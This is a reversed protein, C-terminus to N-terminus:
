PLISPSADPFYNYDQVIALQFTYIRLVFYPVWPLYTPRPDNLFLDYRFPVRPERNYERLYSWEFSALPLPLYFKGGGWFIFKARGTYKKNRDADGLLSVKSRAPITSGLTATPQLKMGWVVRWQTGWLCWYWIAQAGGLTRLAISMNRFHWCYDPLLHSRRLPRLGLKLDKRWSEPNLFILM